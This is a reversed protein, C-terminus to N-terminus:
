AFLREQRALHNECWVVGNGDFTDVEGGCVCCTEPWADPWWNQTKKMHALERGFSHATYHNTVYLYIPTPTWTPLYPCHGLRESPHWYMPRGAMEAATLDSRFTSVAPDGVLLIRTPRILAFRGWFSPSPALYHVHRYPLHHAINDVLRPHTPTANVVLLHDTM